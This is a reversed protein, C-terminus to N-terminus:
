ANSPHWHWRRCLPYRIWEDCYCRFKHGNAYCYVPRSSPDPIIAHGRAVAASALIILFAALGVIMGILFRGTM